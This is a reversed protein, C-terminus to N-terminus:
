PQTTTLAAATTGPATGNSAGSCCAVLGALVVSFLAVRLSTVDAVAGVVSPSLRFGVRLPRSVVTLGVSHPLGPLEDATHMVAPVLTAVGLGALAFGVVTTGLSPIVLALSM